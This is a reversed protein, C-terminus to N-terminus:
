TLWRELQKKKEEPVCPHGLAVELLERDKEAAYWLRYFQSVSLSQMPTELLEVSDGPRVMGPELVSVYTGPHGHSVFADVVGQDEFRIGLAFCPERPTTVRIVAEGAQYLSGMLLDDENMGSVTLNEGFMGFDWALNPYLAKWYPYWEQSFLYAAKRSGGHVKPNGITDGKVGECHLYIGEKKPTKYIGTIRDSGKWTITRPQATNTSVIKM